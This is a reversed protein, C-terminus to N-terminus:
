IKYSMCSSIYPSIIQKITETSKTSFALYHNGNRSKRLSTKLGFREQLFNSFWIQEDLSFCDTAIRYHGKGQYKDFCGDDQILIALSLDTFNDLVFQKPINKTPCYFEEHVKKLCNLSKSRYAVTKFGSKTTFETLSYPLELLTALDLLYNKQKYCHAMQLRPYKCFKHGYSINSDGLLTGCLIEKQRKSLQIQSYKENKSLGNLQLVKGVYTPSCKAILSIEKNTKGKYFEQLIIEKTSM